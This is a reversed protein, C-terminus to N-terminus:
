MNLIEEEKPNLSMIKVCEGGDVSHRKDNIAEVFGSENREKKSFQSFTDTMYM